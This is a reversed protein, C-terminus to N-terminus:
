KLYHMAPNGRPYDRLFRLYMGYAKDEKILYGPQFHINNLVVEDEVVFRLEIDLLNEFRYHNETAEADTAPKPLWLNMFTESRGAEPLSGAFMLAYWKGNMTGQQLYINTGLLRINYHVKEGLWHKGIFDFDCGYKSWRVDEETMSSDSHFNHLIGFHQWDLANSTLMYPDPSVITCPRWRMDCDREPHKLDPLEWLAEEGNFAWICGLKEVTPFHFIGAGKPPPAGIKTRECRGGDAFEWHHFPCQLRNEVVKGFSLDTGMHICYASMVRAVGDEGRYIAVKGGLFPRGIVQGVALDESRCLPFWSQSFMGDDGEHPVALTPRPRPQGGNGAGNRSQPKASKLATSAM